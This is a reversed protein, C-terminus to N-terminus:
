QVPFYYILPFDRFTTRNIHFFLPPSVSEVPLVAIFGEFRDLNLTSFVAQLAPYTSLGLLFTSHFDLLFIPKINLISFIFGLVQILYKLISFTITASLNGDIM